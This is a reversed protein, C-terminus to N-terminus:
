RNVVKLRRRGRLRGVKRTREITKTALAIMSGVDTLNAPLIMTTSKQALKGFEHIYSEAVKLSVAEKGGPEKTASAIQRLGEATAESIALIAAAQGEAQNIHQLRSAESARIVRQKEGEAQNVAADREGESALIIARKKREAKAQEEMAGLIDEPPKINQIEFRLVKIGWSESAQDLHRVINLNINDRSELVEDLEIRGLENRLATQALQSTAFIYDDVGYSAQKPDLVKLYLLGDIKVQVNDKTICVQPATDLAFEKLSHKHRVVDIFPTLIHFGSGLTASYRGLREIIFVHQEPIIIATRSIIFIILLAIALTVLLSGIM